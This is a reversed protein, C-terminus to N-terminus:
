IQATTRVRYLTIDFRKAAEVIDQLVHDDSAHGCDLLLVRHSQPRPSYIDHLQQSIESRRISYNNIALTDGNVRIIISNGAAQLDEPAYRISNCVQPSSPIRPVEKSPASVVSLFLVLTVM